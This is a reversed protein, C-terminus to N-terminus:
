FLLFVRREMGRLIKVDLVNPFFSVDIVISLKDCASRLFHRLRAQPEYGRYFKRYEM